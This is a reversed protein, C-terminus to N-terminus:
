EVCYYSSETVLYKGEEILSNGLFDFTTNVYIIYPSNESTKM